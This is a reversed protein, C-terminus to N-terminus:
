LGLQRIAHMVIPSLREGIPEAGDIRGREGLRASYIVMSDPGIVAHLYRGDRASWQLQVQADDHKSADPPALWSPLTAIFAHVARVTENPVDIRALALYFDHAHTPRQGARADDIAPYRRAQPGAPIPAPVNGIPFPRLPGNAMARWQAGLRDFGRYFSSMPSSMPSTTSLSSRETGEGLLARFQAKVYRMSQHRFSSIVM